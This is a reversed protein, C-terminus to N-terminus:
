LILALLNNIKCEVKNKKSQLQEYLNFDVEVQRDRAFEIQGMRSDIISKFALLESINLKDIYNNPM